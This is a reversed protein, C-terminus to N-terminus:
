RGCGSAKGPHLGRESDGEVDEMLSRVRQLIEDFMAPTLRGTFTNLQSVHYSGILVREGIRCEAGHGFKPRPRPIAEGLDALSRLCAAWAIGGLALIVRPQLVELEGVLWPRCATLQSSTPKNAPPACRCAAGIWMGDLQLGDDRSTSEPQNAFGARHLGAFLFDGSRDGTFMRGTRNAGHAGPALGVLLVRASPDGFGPVPRAWYDWDEYARRRAQGVSACYDRLAPCNTCAITGAELTAMSTNM